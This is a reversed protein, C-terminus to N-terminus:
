SLRRASVVYGTGIDTRRMPLQMWRFPATALQTVWPRAVPQLVRGSRATREEFPLDADPALARNRVWELAFGFPFGYSLVTVEEFGVSGLMGRLQDREYRRYHGVAVDAPGFRDQHSPVSLLLLGGSDLWRRWAEIAARDNEIHELVEFAGVVDFAGDPEAPLFSNFVKGGGALRQHAVQFSALDPEYGTYDFRQSLRVALGGQGCGVELFRGGAPLLRRILEWRLWANYSLPAVPTLRKATDTV